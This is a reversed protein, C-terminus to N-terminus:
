SSNVEVYVTDTWWIRWNRTVQFELLSPWRILPGNFEEIAWFHTEEGHDVSVIKGGDRCYDELHEFGEDPFYDYSAYEPIDLSNYGGAWGMFNVFTMRYDEIEEASVNM